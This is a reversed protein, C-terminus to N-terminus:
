PVRRAAAVTTALEALRLPGVPAAAETPGPADPRDPAGPRDPADPTGAREAEAAGPTPGGPRPAPAVQRAATRETGEISIRYGDAGALVDVWRGRPHGCRRECGSWYVPLRREPRRDAPTPETPSPTTAALAGAADARVDALSKACGPRGTCAGVGHWASAADTVLGAEALVGWWHRADATALGPVVVGRWPTVRMEGRGARATAVLLRWQALSLRGLPAAVSLAARGGGPAPVLGLAPGADLPATGPTGVGTRGTTADRAPVAEADIGARALAARVRSETLAHGAPLEWVRWAKAGSDRSAAAFALATLLAARPAADAPVRLAPSPNAGGCAAAPSTDARAGTPREPAPAGPARGAAPDTGVRLLARGGPEAILTVDAGLTAVDGRGDDVAFLFRGSLGAAAPTGCLLGDLERVWATVDARGAGDLGSLPSLAVNRVREHTDSPLLGASRLREALEAGCGSDLGRVQVNGRSTVDLAGDGLTEAVLALEEAQDATLLGGPLRVRALFGDDARHLRLAGPCADDGTRSRPEEGTPATTPTLPMAALMGVIGEAAGDRVLDAWGPRVG